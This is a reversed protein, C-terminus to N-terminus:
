EYIARPGSLIKSLEIQLDSIFDDKGTSNLNEYHKTGEITLRMVGSVLGAYSEEITPITNFKWINDNIGMLPEDYVKGRVFNYDVKVYFQSDPYSFTSRIIKVTVTLGNDSVSCFDNNNGNVFQQTVNDSSDDIRYIWLYGDSLEVPDYYTITIYGNHTLNSPNFIADNISPYTSYILLNSYGYDPIGSYNPIDTTCHIDTSVM